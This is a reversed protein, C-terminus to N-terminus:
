SKISNWGAICVENMLKTFYRISDNLFRIFEENILVLKEKDHQNYQGKTSKQAELVQKRQKLTGRFEEITKYFCTKWLHSILDKVKETTFGPYNVILDRYGKRVSFISCILNRIIVHVFHVIGQLYNRLKRSIKEPISEFNVSVSKM